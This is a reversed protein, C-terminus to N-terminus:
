AAGLRAEAIPRGPDDVVDRHRGVLLAGSGRRARSAWPRAAAASSTARHRRARLERAAGRAGDPEEALVEDDEAGARALEAQELLVARVPARREAEADDVGLADAARVVPELERRAAAAELQGRLAAVAAAARARKSARGVARLLEAAEDERVEPGLGRREERAVVEKDPLAHQAVDPAREERAVPELDHLVADVREVELPEVAVMEAATRRSRPSSRAAGVVRRGVAHSIPKSTKRKPM